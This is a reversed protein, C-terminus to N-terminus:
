CFLFYAILAYLAVHKMQKDSKQSLQEKADPIQKEDPKYIHSRGGYGRTRFVQEAM